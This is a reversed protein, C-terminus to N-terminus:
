ENIIEQMEIRFLLRKCMNELIIRLESDPINHYDFYNLEDYEYLSGNSVILKYGARDEIHNLYMYYGYMNHLEKYVPLLELQQM